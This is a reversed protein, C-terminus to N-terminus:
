VSDDVVLTENITPTVAAAADCGAQIPWAPLSSTFNTPYPYNVMAM